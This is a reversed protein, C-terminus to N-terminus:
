KIKTIYYLPLKDDRNKYFSIKDIKKWLYYFFLKILWSKSEVITKSTDISIIKKVTKTKM